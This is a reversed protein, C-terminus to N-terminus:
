VVRPACGLPALARQMSECVSGVFSRYYPNGDPSSVLPHSTAVAGPFVEPHLLRAYVAAAGPWSCGFVIPQNPARDARDLIAMGWDSAYTTITHRAVHALDDVVSRMTLFRLRELAEVVGAEGEPIEDLSTPCSGESRSSDRATECGFYRNPVNIILAGLEEALAASTGVFYSNLYLDDIHWLASRTYLGSETSGYGMNIFIPGNPKEVPDWFKSNVFYAMDWEGQSPDDHDVPTAIKGYRHCREGGPWGPWDDCIPLLHAPGWQEPDRGDVLGIAAIAAIGAVLLRVAAAARPAEM